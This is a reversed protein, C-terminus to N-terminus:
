WNLEIYHRALEPPMPSDLLGAALRLADAAGPALRAREGITLAADVWDRVLVPRLMWPLTEVEELARALRDGDPPELPPMADAPVFRGMVGRYWALGAASDGTPVLRSLHATVAAIQQRMEAPLDSMDNQPAPMAAVPPRDGLKRRMLLWVLRDVPRAPAQAVMVRRTAQLLVRREPKPLAGVRDLLAELCPLRAAPSLQGVDAQVADASAVDETEHAWAHLAATNGAEAVLALAAARLGGEGHVRSLRDLADRQALEAPTM